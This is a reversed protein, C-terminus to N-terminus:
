SDDFFCVCLFGRPNRHRGDVSRFELRDVIGGTVKTPMAAMDEEAGPAVVVVVNVGGLLEWPLSELSHFVEYADPYSASTPKNKVLM